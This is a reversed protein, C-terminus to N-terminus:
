REFIYTARYPASFEKGPACPKGAVGDGGVTDVRRITKVGALFSGPPSDNNATLELEPITPPDQGVRNPTAKVLTGTIRSGDPGVWSPGAGHTITQGDPTKLVAEPRAFKFTNTAADCSYIQVSQGPETNATIPEAASAAGVLFVVLTPVVLALSALGAARTCRRITM